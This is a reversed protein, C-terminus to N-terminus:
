VPCFFSRVRLGFFIVDKIDYTLCSVLIITSLLISILYEMCTRRKLRTQLRHVRFMGNFCKTPLSTFNLVICVRWPVLADKNKLVLSKEQLHMRILEMQYFEVSFHYIDKLYYVSVFTIQIEAFSM